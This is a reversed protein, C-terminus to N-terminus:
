HRTGSEQMLQELLALDVDSVGSFRLGVGFHEKNAPSTRCWVTEATLRLPPVSHDAPPRIEIAFTQGVPLEHTAILMMGSTSLDVLRGLQERSQQDFVPFFNQLRLRVARDPPAQDM